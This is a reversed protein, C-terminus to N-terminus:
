QLGIQISVRSPWPWLSAMGAASIRKLKLVDSPLLLQVLVYHPSTKRAGSRADDCSACRFFSGGVPRLLAMSNMRTHSYALSRTAPLKLLWGFFRFSKKWWDETSPNISTSENHELRSESTPLMSGIATSSSAVKCAKSHHRRISPPHSSPERQYGRTPQCGHWRAIANVNRLYQEVVM